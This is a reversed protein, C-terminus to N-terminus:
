GSRRAPLADRAPWPADAPRLADYGEGARVAWAALVGAVLVPNHLEGGLVGRVLEALPVRSVPMDAEEHEGVHRDADPVDTLDRALFIRVSEDTMGPSTFLDVLVSWREARVHAEEFLERRAATDYAEGAVDLLGAPVEVLRHGVPHRYQHVVLVREREDLAVIGVAGPHVVVDRVFRDRAAPPQVVERRVSVVRTTEHVVEREVVPWREPVDAVPETV